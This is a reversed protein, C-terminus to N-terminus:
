YSLSKRYSTTGGIGFKLGVVIQSFADQKGYTIGDLNDSFIYNYQYGIDLKVVPESYSNFFKFEYGVKLPMYINSGKAEVSEIGGDYIKLNTYIVGVGASLYLNKFANAFQGQSYDFLEGMQLQARFSVTTFSNNYSYATGPFIKLSDGKISGVQIEAIYNLYPTYNYTFHGFASYSTRSNAFDTMARNTAGSLGFDYQSYNYGVQAKAGFASVCVILALIFKKLLQYILITYYYPILQYM